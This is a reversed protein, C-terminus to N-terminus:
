IDNGILFLPQDPFKTLTEYEKTKCKGQCTLAPRESNGVTYVVLGTKEFLEKALTIDEGNIALSIPQNRTLWMALQDVNINTTVDIVVRRWYEELNDPPLDNRIRYYADYNPHKVYDPAVVREAKSSSFDFINAFQNTKLCELASSSVVTGHFTRIVEDETMGPVVALRLATCQGSNEITASIRIADSFAPTLKSTVVLTNPGGTSSIINSHEKKIAKALSRSCSSILM